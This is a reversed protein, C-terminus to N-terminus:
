FTFRYGPDLTHERPEALLMFERILYPNTLQHLTANRIVEFGHEIGMAEDVDIDGAFMGDAVRRQFTVQLNAHADRSKFSLGTKEFGALPAHLADSATKFVASDNLKQVLAAEVMVFMRDQRCILVENFMGFCKDSTRHAAKKAINLLGAQRLPGLAKYLKEGSLGVLDEDGTQDAMMQAGSLITRLREPLEAFKPASIGKVDGAKVVLEVDDGAANEVGERILQFFGYPRFHPASFTVQYMTGVGGRCTIGSITLDTSAGLNVAATMPEGGTGPEGTMPTFDIEVVARIPEGAADTVQLTLSGTAM